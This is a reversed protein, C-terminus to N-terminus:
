KEEEEEEKMGIILAQCGGDEGDKKTELGAARGIM